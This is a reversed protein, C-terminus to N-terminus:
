FNLPPVKSGWGAKGKRPLDVGDIMNIPRGTTM